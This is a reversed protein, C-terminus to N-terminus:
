FAFWGAAVVALVLAAGVVFGTEALFEQIREEAGQTPVDNTGLITKFLPM